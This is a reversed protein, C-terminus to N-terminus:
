LYVHKRSRTLLTSSPLISRFVFPTGRLWMRAAIINSDHDESLAGATVLCRAIAWEDSRRAEVKTHHLYEEYKQQELLAAQEFGILSLFEADRCLLRHSAVSNLFIPGLLAPLERDSALEKLRTCLLSFQTFTREVVTFAATPRVPSMICVKFTIDNEGASPDVVRLLLASPHLM